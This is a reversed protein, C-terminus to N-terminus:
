WFNKENFNSKLGQTNIIVCALFENEEVFRCFFSFEIVTHLRKFCLVSFNVIFTHM